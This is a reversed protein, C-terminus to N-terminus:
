QLHTELNRLSEYGILDYTINIQTMPTHSLNELWLLEASFMYSPTAPRKWICDSKGRVIM